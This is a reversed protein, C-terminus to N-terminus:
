RPPDPWAGQAAAAAIDVHWPIAAFSDRDAPDLGDAAAQMMQRAQGLARTAEPMNGALHFVQAAAWYCYEPWETSGAIGKEDALLRHVHNVAAPLNGNAAHWVALDALTKSAWVQSQSRARLELATEAHAIAKTM